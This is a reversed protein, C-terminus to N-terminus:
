RGNLLNNFSRTYYLYWNFDWDFSNNIQCNLFLFNYLLFHEDFVKFCFCYFYRVLNDVFTNNHLCFFLWDFHESISHLVHMNLIDFNDFSVIHYDMRDFYRHRYNKFFIQGNCYYRFCDINQWHRLNNLFYHRLYLLFDPNFLYIHNM